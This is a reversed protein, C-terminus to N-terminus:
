KRVAASALRGLAGGGLARRKVRLAFARSFLADVDACESPATRLAGMLAEGRLRLLKAEHLSLVALGSADHNLADPNHIANALLHTHIVNALMMIM